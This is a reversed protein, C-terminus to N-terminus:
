AAAVVWRHLDEVEVRNWPVEHRVWREHYLAVLRPAPDLRHDLLTIILRYTSTLTSTDNGTVAIEAEIVRLKLGNIVTLYSGDSLHALVTPRRRNTARVLFQAGTAAIEALFEDADFGRDNLLLKRAWAIEGISTPGFVAGILARTGTEVLTMLMLM